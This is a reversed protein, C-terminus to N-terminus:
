GAEEKGSCCRGTEPVEGAAQEARKQAKKQARRQRFFASIRESCQEAMVGGRYDVLHNMWPQGFVKGNSIVAGAKPETAGFVVRRIRAHVIAGACMTCPEITVYLEADVLRYNEVAQAAARLAMIEAHATPDHGSIPHNWGEGIVKDNLVIVAGVPVEGLDAAREALQLAHKMWRLETDDPQEETDPIQEAM